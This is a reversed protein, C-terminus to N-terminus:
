LIDGIKKRNDQSNPINQGTMDREGLHNGISDFVEYHQKNERHFFDYYWYHGTQLEVYIRQNRYRKNTPEFMSADDLSFGTQSFSSTLWYKLEKENDVIPIKLMTPFTRSFAYDKVIFLTNRQGHEIGGGINLIAFSTQPAEIISETAHVFIPPLDNFAFNLLQMYHARYDAKLNGTIDQSRYKLLARLNSSIENKNTEGIIVEVNTLFRAVNTSDYYFDVDGTDRLLTKALQIGRVLDMYQDPDEGLALIADDSDPFVLYANIPM